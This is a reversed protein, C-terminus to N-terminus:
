LFIIRNNKNDESHAKCKEKTFITSASLLGSDIKTESKAIRLKNNKKKRKNLFCIKL